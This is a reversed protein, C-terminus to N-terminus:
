TVCMRSRAFGPSSIWIVFGRITVFLLDVIIMVEALAPEKM